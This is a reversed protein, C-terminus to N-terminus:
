GAAASAAAVRERLAPSPQAAIEPFLMEEYVDITRACMAERTYSAAIHARARRAFAMRAGDDLLLAEGIAAGL